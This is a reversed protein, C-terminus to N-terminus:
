TVQVSPKRFLITRTSRYVGIICMASIKGLSNVEGCGVYLCRTDASGSNCSILISTMATFSYWGKSPRSLCKFDGVSKPFRVMSQTAQFMARSSYRVLIEASPGGELLVRIAVVSRSMKVM